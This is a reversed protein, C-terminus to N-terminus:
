GGYEQVFADNFSKAVARRDSTSFMKHWPQGPSGFEKAYKKACNDALYMWLKEAKARDFIGKSIKRKLSNQIPVVQQRYLDGDNECFLQLERM